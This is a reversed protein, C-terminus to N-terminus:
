GGETEGINSNPAGKVILEMRTGVMIVQLHDLDFNDPLIRINAVNDRPIMLHRCEEDIEFPQSKGKVMLIGKGVITIWNETFDTVNGVFVWPRQEQYTRKCRIRINKGKM